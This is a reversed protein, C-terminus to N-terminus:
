IIKHWVPTNVSMSVRELMGRIIYLILTRKQDKNVLDTPKVFPGKLM